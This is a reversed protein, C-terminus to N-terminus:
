DHRNNAGTPATPFANQANELSRHVGNQADVVGAAEVREVDDNGGGPPNFEAPENM